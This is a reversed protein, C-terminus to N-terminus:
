TELSFNLSWPLDSRRPKSRLAEETKKIINHLILEGTSMVGVNQDQAM